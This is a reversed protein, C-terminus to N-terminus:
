LIFGLKIAGLMMKEKYLFEKVRKEGAAYSAEFGFGFRNKMWISTISVMGTPILKQHYGLTGIFQLGFNTDLEYCWHKNKLDFLSITGIQGVGILAITYNISKNIGLRLITITVDHKSKEREKLIWRYNFVLGYHFAHIDKRSVGDPGWIAQNINDSGYGGVRDIFSYGLTSNLIFGSSNPM